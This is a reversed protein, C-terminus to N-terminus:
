SRFGLGAGFRGAAVRTDRGVQQGAIGARLVEVAEQEGDRIRGRSISWGVGLAAM